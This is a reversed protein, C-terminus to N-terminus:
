ALLAPTRREALDVLVAELERAEAGRGLQRLANVLNGSQRLLLQGEDADAFWDNRPALGQQLLYTLCDKRTRIKGGHFPDVLLSREGAYLRLMVHGPLPVAAARIGARRAVFLHVAVLSLPLGRRRSLVRGLHVNDPHHYHDSAGRLGHEECLVDVLALAQAMGTDLGQGRARVRAALRDLEARVEQADFDPDIVRTLRLLGAELTGPASAEHAATRAVTTCFRRLAGRRAQSAELARARLRVRPDASEQARRLAPLAARGARELAARVPQWVRESPDDLLAVLAQIRDPHTSRHAALELPQDHM